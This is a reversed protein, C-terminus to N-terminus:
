GSAGASVAFKFGLKKLQPVLWRTLELTRNNRRLREGLEGVDASWDHFLVVGKKKRQISELYNERCRELTYTENGKRMHRPGGIQWDGFEINWGIPGEYQGFEAVENLIGAIEHSWVGYPARLLCPVSGVAEKILHHTKLVEDVLKAPSNVLPTLEQHSYTHNGITHGLESVKRVTEPNKEVHKGVVFFTARIENESLFRAIELTHPGPGDDFTLSVTKDPLHATHNRTLFVPLRYGARRGPTLL